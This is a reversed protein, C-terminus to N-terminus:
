FVQGGKAGQIHNRNMPELNQKGSGSPAWRMLREGAPLPRGGGLYKQRLRRNNEVAPREKERLRQPFTILPPEKSLATM